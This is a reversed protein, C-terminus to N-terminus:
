VTLYPHTKKKVVGNLPDWIVVSLCDRIESRIPPRLYAMRRSFTGKIIGRFDYLKCKWKFLSIINFIKM